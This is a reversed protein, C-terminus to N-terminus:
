DTKWIKVVYITYRTQYLSCNNNVLRFTYTSPAKRKSSCKKKRNNIVSAFIFTSLFTFNLTLKKFRLQLYKRPQEPGSFSYVFYTMLKGNFIVKKRFYFCLAYLTTFVKEKAAM